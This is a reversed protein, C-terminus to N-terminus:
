VATSGCTAVGGFGGGEVEGACEQVARMGQEQKVGAEESDQEDQM